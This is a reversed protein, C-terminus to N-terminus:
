DLRRIKVLLGGLPKVSIGGRIEPVFDDDPLRTDFSRVWAAVLCALEGRAFKEGICSRPGHLFTMFSFNSAGDSKEPNLWREPRFEAADEGWLETSANVAWPPLTIGTGKPIHHGVITTDQVAVRVTLAVPPYLRLTENCVAQLYRLGDIATATVSQADQPLASVIEARLTAQVKPNKALLYTVWTLASATTEHGAVLFTMLQDVLQEESFTGSRLAVGLIDKSDDEADIKQKKLNILELCHKRIIGSSSSIDSNRKIRGHILVLRVFKIM